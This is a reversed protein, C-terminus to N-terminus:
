QFLDQQAVVDENILIDADNRLSQAFAVFDGIGYTDTLELKGADREDQPISAPRGPMVADIRYM